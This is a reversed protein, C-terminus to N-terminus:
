NVLANFYKREDNPSKKIYDDKGNEYKGVTKVIIKRKSQM